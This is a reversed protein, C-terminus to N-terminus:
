PSHFRSFPIIHQWCRTTHWWRREFSSQLWEHHKYKYIVRAIKLSTRPTRAHSEGSFLLQFFTCAIRSKEYLLIIWLTTWTTKISLMLWCCPVSDPNAVLFSPVVCFFPIFDNTLLIVTTTKWGIIFFVHANTTAVIIEGSPQTFFAQFMLASTPAPM